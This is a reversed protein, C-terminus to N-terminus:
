SELLSKFLQIWLAGVIDPSYTKSKEIVARSMEGRLTENNLLLCLDKEFQELDFPKVLIGNLGNPSLIDRVGSSCDFAIPIVGYSQAEALSLPWGEFTSTLCLISASKYYQVVDKQYGEFIINELNNEKVFLKLREEEPGSGIIRLTWDPYIRYINNWITLLRDVRKDAYSLRGVYIIEKQKHEIDVEQPLKISNPMVSIKTRDECNLHLYKGLMEKYQSTLTLYADCLKYVEQYQRIAKKVHLNLVEYKIKQILIWDLRKFFSRGARAKALIYKNTAEWLPISHLAFILKVNTTRKIKVLDKFYVGPLILIAVDNDRVFDIIFDLNDSTDSKTQNPLQVLNINKLNYNKIHCALVYIDFGRDSLYPAINITVQEGGGFPISEHIFVVKKRIMDFYKAKKGTILFLFM